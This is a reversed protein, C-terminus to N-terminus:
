PNRWQQIAAAVLHFEPTAFPDLQKPPFRWRADHEACLRKTPLQGRTDVVTEFGCICRYIGAHTIWDGPSYPPDFAADESRLFVKKDKYTPM